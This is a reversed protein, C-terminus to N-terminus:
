NPICLKNVLGGGDMIRVKMDREIEGLDWNASVFRFYPLKLQAPFLM